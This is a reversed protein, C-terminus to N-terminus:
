HVQMQGSLVLLAFLELIGTYYRNDKVPTDMDWVAQIYDKRDGNSVLLAAAGNLPTLSEEPTTSDPTGDLKYGGVYTKGKSRLDSFTKLVRECIPVSTLNGHWIQDLVLNLLVRYGEPTFREAGAVPTGDFYARLPMFGTKDDAANELFDRGKVAADSWFADGTAQAWLAYYAPIVISPRTQQAHDADPVDFPLRSETDFLNTVGDDSVGGTADEKHRMVDLVALADAEYDVAGDSGWRTHAFILSM